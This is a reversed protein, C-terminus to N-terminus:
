WACRGKWLEDSVKRYHELRMHLEELAIGRRAMNGIYTMPDTKETMVAHVEASVDAVRKMADLFRMVIPSSKIDALIEKRLQARVAMDRDWLAEEGKMLFCLRDRRVAEIAANYAEKASSLETRLSSITHGHCDHDPIHNFDDWDMGCDTCILKDRM